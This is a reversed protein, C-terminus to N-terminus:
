AILKLVQDRTLGYTEFEGKANHGIRLISKRQVTKDLDWSLHIWEPKNLTGYELIMQDFVFGKTLILQALLINCETGNIRMERDTAEGAMHQSSPQGGALTNVRPCRYGSTQSLIATPYEKKVAAYVPELLNICLATLKKIVLADPTYQEKINNRVAIDSKCLEELTFNPSLNTM